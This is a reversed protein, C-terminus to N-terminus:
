VSFSYFLSAVRSEISSLNASNPLFVEEDECDVDIAVVTGVEKGVVVVIRLTIVGSITIGEFFSFPSGDLKFSNLAM